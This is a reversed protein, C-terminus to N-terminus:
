VQVISDFEARAIFTTTGCHCRYTFLNLIYNKVEEEDVALTLISYQTVQNKVLMLHYFWGEGKDITEILKFNAQYSKM